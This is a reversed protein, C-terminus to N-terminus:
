DIDAESRYRGIHQQAAISAFPISRGHERGSGSLPHGPSRRRENLRIIRRAFFENWFRSCVWSAAYQRADDAPRRAAQPCGEIVVKMWDPSGGPPIRHYVPAASRSLRPALYFLFLQRDRLVRTQYRNTLSARLTRVERDGGRHSHCGGRACVRRRHIWRNSNQSAVKDHASGV